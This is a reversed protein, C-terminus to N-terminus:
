AQWALEAKQFDNLHRRNHNLMIVCEKEELQNEFQKVEINPSIGLENCVKFRHHGDIVVGNQNVIISIINRGHEKISSKLFEYEQNTPSHVLKAYEENIRINM